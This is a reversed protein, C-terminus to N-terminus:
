RKACNKLKPYFAHSDHHICEMMMSDVVLKHPGSKDPDGARLEGHLYISYDNPNNIEPQEARRTSGLRRAGNIVTINIWVRINLAAHRPQVNWTGLVYM